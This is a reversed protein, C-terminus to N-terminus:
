RRSGFGRERRMGFTCRSRRIKGDHALPRLCAGGAAAGWRTTHAGAREANSHPPSRVPLAPRPFARHLSAGRTCAALRACGTTAHQRSLQPSAHTCASPEPQAAPSKTNGVPCLGVYHYTSARAFCARQEAAPSPESAHPQTDHPTLLSSLPFPGLAPVRRARRPCANVMTTCGPNWSEACTQHVPTQTPETRYHECRPAM